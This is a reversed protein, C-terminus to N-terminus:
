QYTSLILMRVKSGPEKAPDDPMQAPCVNFDITSELGFPKPHAVEPPCAAVNVGKDGKYLM